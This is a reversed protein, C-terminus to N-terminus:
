PFINMVRIIYDSVTNNKFYIKFTKNVTIALLQIKSGLFVLNTSFKKIKRFTVDNISISKPYYRKQLCQTTSSITILFAVYYSLSKLIKRLSFYQYNLINYM